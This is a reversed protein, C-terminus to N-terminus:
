AASSIDLDGAVPFLGGFVLCNRVDFASHRRATWGSPCARPEVLVLVLRALALLSFCVGHIVNLPRLM